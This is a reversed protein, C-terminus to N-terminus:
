FLHCCRNLKRAEINFTIADASLNDTKDLLAKLDEERERLKDLSDLLIIKTEDIEHRIKLLKDAEFPNQYQVFLENINKHSSIGKLCNLLQFATSQPYEKNTIIIRYNDITMGYITFENEGIKEDIRYYSNQKVHHVLEKAFTEIEKKINSRIIFNFDNLSHNSYELNYKSDFTLLSYLKMQTQSTM